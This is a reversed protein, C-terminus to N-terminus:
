AKASLLQAAEEVFKRQTEHLPKFSSVEMVGVVTDEKKLPVILLYRPSAMGLGSAIKMYGDPIDDIYFTKGEAAAQGILGEGMDFRISANEGISLAYGGTLEIWKQTEDEQVTYLAGQGAELQKCISKLGNLVDEKSNAAIAKRVEALNFTSQTQNSTDKLLDNEEQVSRNKFVIIEKQHRLALVLSLGGTVFSLILYFWITESNELQLTYVSFSVGGMSAVFLAALVLSIKHPDIEKM